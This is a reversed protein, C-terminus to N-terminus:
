RDLLWGTRFFGAGLDIFLGSDALQHIVCQSTRWQTTLVQDDMLMQQDNSARQAHDMLDRNPARGNDVFSLCQHSGTIASLCKPTGRLPNFMDSPTMGPSAATSILIFGALPNGAIDARAAVVDYQDHQVPVTLLERLGDAVILLELTPVDIKGVPQWVLPFRSDM